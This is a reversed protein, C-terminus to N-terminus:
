KSYVKKIKVEKLDWMKLFDGVLRRVESMKKVLIPDRKGDQFTTYIAYFKNM